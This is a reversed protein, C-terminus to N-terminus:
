FSANTGDKDFVIMKPRTTLSPLKEFGNFSPEWYLIGDDKKEEEYQRMITMTPRISSHKHGPSFAVTQHAICGLFIFLILINIRICMIQEQKTRKITYLSEDDVMSFRTTLSEDAYM